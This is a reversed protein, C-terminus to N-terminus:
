RTLEVHGAIIRHVHRRNRLLLRGTDDLGFCKGSVPSEAPSIVTVSRGILAHHADYERLLTPFPTESKRILTTHLHRAITILVTTLDFPPASKATIQQLYIIRDRLNIPLPRQPQNVNLGIGILDINDLRECLLGALKRMPSPSNGIASQFVLDNPWKLKIQDNRSIEAAANRVALGAALPLHHPALTQNVPLVFTVTISGAPASYWTNVGRGRGATQRAALVVAPAFLDGRKRLVAAHDNTSRLRPFFHLRFPKLGERLHQLNFANPSPLIQNSQTAHALTNAQGHHKSLALVVPLPTGNGM